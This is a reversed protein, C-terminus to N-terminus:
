TKSKSTIMNMPEADPTLPIVEFSANETTKYGIKDRRMFELASGSSSHAGEFTRSRKQGLGSRERLGSVSRAAREQIARLAFAVTDRGRPWVAGAMCARTPRAPIMKQQLSLVCLLSGPKFCQVVSICRKIALNSGSVGIHAGLSLTEPYHLAYTRCLWTQAENMFCLCFAEGKGVSFVSLLKLTHSEVLHSILVLKIDDGTWWSLHEAPFSLAIWWTRRQHDGAKM